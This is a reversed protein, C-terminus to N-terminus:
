TDLRIENWDTGPSTVWGLAQHREAALSHAEAHQAATLHRYSTGFAGFDGRKPTPLLGEEYGRMAIAAVLQDFSAYQRPLEITGDQQLDTTRARWHWLRASERELEIEEDDRLRAGGLETQAIEESDFPQDYPPLEALQLVWLLTGLAEGAWVADVVAADGTAGPLRGLAGRLEEGLGRCREVIEDQSRLRHRAM